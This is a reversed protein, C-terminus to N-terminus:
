PDTRESTNTPEDDSGYVLERMTVAPIEATAAMDVSERVRDLAIFLERDLAVLATLLRQGVRYARAEGPLVMANLSAGAQIRHAYILHDLGRALQRARVARRAARFQRCADVMARGTATM